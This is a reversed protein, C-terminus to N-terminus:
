DLLNIGRKRSLALKKDTDPSPTVAVNQSQGIKQFDAKGAITPKEKANAPPVKQLFEKQAVLWWKQLLPIDKPNIFGLTTEAKSPIRIATKRPYPRSMPAKPAKPMFYAKIPKEQCTAHPAVTRIEPDEEMFIQVPIPTQCSLHIWGTQEMAQTETQTCIVAFQLERRLEPSKEQSLRLELYM